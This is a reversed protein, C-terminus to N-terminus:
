GKIAGTALGSVFYRQFILYVILVPLISIVVAANLLQYNSAFQGQFSAFSLPITWMDKSQLLVLAIAFENWTAVFDLIVLAALAPVSVPLIVRWFLTFNTCGDIRAAEDLERPISLFFNNLLFIQYSAGFAIYPLIVALYTNLLDLSLAMTFLPGLAVQVPVMAGMILFLFLFKRGRFRLRSLAFAAMASIIIGAPVKIVSIILSNLGFQAINGRNWAQAYNDFRWVQPPMYSPNAYLDSSTKLSTFFIFIFPVLWILAVVVLSVWLGILIPDSKLRTTSITTPVTDSVNFTAV